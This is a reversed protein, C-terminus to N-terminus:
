KYRTKNPDGISRLELDVHFDRTATLVDIAEQIDEFEIIINM